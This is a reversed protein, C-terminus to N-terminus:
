LLLFHCHAYDQKQMLCMWYGLSKIKGIDAWKDKYLQCLTMLIQYQKRKDTSAMFSVQLQNWFVDPDKVAKLSTANTDTKLLKKLYYSGVFYEDKLSEDYQVEFEAYNWKIPGDLTPQRNM